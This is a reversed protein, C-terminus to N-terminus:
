RHERARNWRLFEQFLKEIHGPDIGCGTDAVSTQVFGDPTTQFDVAIRGGPAPQVSSQGSVGLHRHDEVDVRSRSRRCPISQQTLERALINHDRPRV